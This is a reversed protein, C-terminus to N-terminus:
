VLPLVSFPQEDYGDHERSVVDGPVFTVPLAVGTDSLPWPSSVQKGDITIHRRDGSVVEYFGMNLIKPQWGNKKDVNIPITLTRYSIDNRSKVESVKIAKIKAKGAEIEVNDVTFDDSNVVNRYDLIWLPVAAVNKVVTIIQRSDDIMFPPDYPDGAANTVANGDKDEVLPVQYSEGDWTITAPDSLPNEDREKETSYSAAVRWLYPSVSENTATIKQCYAAPDDPYLTGYRPLGAASLVVAADDFKYDTKVLWSREYRRAKEDGDASRGQWLPRVWLVAM